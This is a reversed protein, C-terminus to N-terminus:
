NEATEGLEELVCSPCFDVARIMSSLRAKKKFALDWIKKKSNIIFNSLRVRLFCPCFFLLRGFSPPLFLFQGGRTLFPRKGGGGKGEKGKLYSLQLLPPPNPSHPSPPVM